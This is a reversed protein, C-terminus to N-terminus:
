WIQYRVIKATHWRSTALLKAGRQRSSGGFGALRKLLLRRQKWSVTAEEEPRRRLNKLANKSGNSRARTGAYLFNLNIIPDGSITVGTPSQPQCSPQAVNWLQFGILSSHLALQKRLTPTVVYEISFLLKWAKECQPGSFPSLNSWLDWNSIIKDLTKGVLM